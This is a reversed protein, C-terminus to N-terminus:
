HFVAAKKKRATGEGKKRKRTVVPGISGGLAHTHVRKHKYLAIKTLKERM